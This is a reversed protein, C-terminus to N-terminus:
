ARPAFFRWEFPMEPDDTKVFDAQGEDVYASFHCKECIDIARKQTTESM